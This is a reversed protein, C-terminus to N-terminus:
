LRRRLKQIVGKYFLSTQDTNQPRFANMHRFNTPSVLEPTSQGLSINQEVIVGKWM